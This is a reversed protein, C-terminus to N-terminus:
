AKRQMIRVDNAVLDLIYIRQQSDVAADLGGVLGDSRTKLAGTKANEYFTETGAVVSEFGGKPSYVKVRPLGKECTVHRGDPLLALGVPNCCGCFGEIGASPRGWNGTIGPIFARPTVVFAAAACGFSLVIAATITLGIQRGLGRSPEPGAGAAGWRRGRERDREAGSAVQWLVVSAIILPTYVVLVLGLALQAGSLVAGIVVFVSLSLLQAEDRMTARDLMKVMLVMALFDTVAQARAAGAAAALEAPDIAEDYEADLEDHVSM